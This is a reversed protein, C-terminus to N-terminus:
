KLKLINTMGYPKKDVFGKRVLSDVNRSLSSKPISMKKELLSQTISFDESGFLIDIIQKQRSPLNNVFPEVVFRYDSNSSDVVIKNDTKKSFFNKVSLFIRKIFAMIFSIISGVIAYFWWPPKDSLSNKLEYQVVIKLPKNEAIGIITLDDGSTEVRLFSPLKMYNVSSGKPLHIEFIANEFVDTTSFNLVWYPGSKSTYSPSDIVGELDLSNTDGSITLLGMEDVVFSVDAYFTNQISNNSTLSHVSVNNSVVSDSSVFSSNTILILVAFLIIPIYYKKKSAMKFDFLNM